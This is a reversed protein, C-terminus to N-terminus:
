CSATPIPVLLAEVDVRRVVIRKTGIRYAALQGSAIRRRVSRDTERLYDSTEQITLHEPASLRPMM